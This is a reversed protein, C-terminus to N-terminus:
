TTSSASPISGVVRQNCLGRSRSRGNVVSEQLRRALLTKRDNGLLRRHELYRSNETCPVWSLGWLSNVPVNGPKRTHTRTCAAGVVSVVPRLVVDRPSAGLM